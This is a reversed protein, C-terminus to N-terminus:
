GGLLECDALLHASLSTSCNSDDHYPVYLINQFRFSPTWLEALQTDSFTQAFNWLPFSLQISILLCLRQLQLVLHTDWASPCCIYVMSSSLVHWAPAGPQLQVSGHTTLRSLSRSSLSSVPQCFLGKLLWITILTPASLLSDILLCLLWALQSISNTSFYTSYPLKILPKKFLPWYLEYCM